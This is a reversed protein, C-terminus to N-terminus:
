YVSNFPTALATGYSALESGGHYCLSSLTLITIMRVSDHACAQCLLRVVITRKTNKFLYMWRRNQHFSTINVARTRDATHSPVSRVMKQEEPNIQLGTIYLLLRQKTSYINNLPVALSYAYRDVWLLATYHAVKPGLLATYSEQSPIKNYHQLVSMLLGPNKASHPWHRGSQNAREANKM